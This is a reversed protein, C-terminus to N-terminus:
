TIKLKRGKIKQLESLSNVNVAFVGICTAHEQRCRAM